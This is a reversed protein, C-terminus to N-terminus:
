GVLVINLIAFLFTIDSGYSDISVYINEGSAAVTGMGTVSVATSSYAGVVVPPISFGMPFYRDGVHLIISANAAEDARVNCSITAMYIGTYPVDVKGSTITWDTSLSPKKVFASGQVFPITTDTPPTSPAWTTSCCFLGPMTQSAWEVGGAATAQICDGANLPAAIGSDGFVDIAVGYNGAGDDTVRIGGPSAPSVTSTLASGGGALAAIATTNATVRTDLNGLTTALTGIDSDKHWINEETIAFVDEWTADADIDGADTRKQVVIAPTSTIGTATFDSKVCIKYESEDGAAIDRIRVGNEDDEGLLRVAALYGSAWDFAAAGVEVSSQSPKASTDACLVWWLADVASMVKDDIDKARHSGKILDQSITPM